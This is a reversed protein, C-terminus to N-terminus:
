KPKTWPRDLVRRIYTNRYTLMSTLENIDEAQKSKEFEKNKTVNGRKDMVYLSRRYDRELQHIQNLIDQQQQFM